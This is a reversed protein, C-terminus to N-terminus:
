VPMTGLISHIYRPQRLVGLDLDSGAIPGLERLQNQLQSIRKENVSLQATTERVEQEIKDVQPRISAIELLDSQAAPPLGEEVSLTQMLVTLQRELLAYAAARDRWSETAVVGVQSGMNSADIQQFVGWGALTRTISLLDKDPVILELETMEEPFLM